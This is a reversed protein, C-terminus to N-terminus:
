TYQYVIRFKFPSTATADPPRKRPNVQPGITLGHLRASNNFLAVTYKTEAAHLRRKIAYTLAKITAVQRRRHTNIDKGGSESALVEPILFTQHIALVFRKCQSASPRTIPRPIFHPIPDDRTNM